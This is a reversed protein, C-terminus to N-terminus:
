RGGITYRGVSLLRRMISGSSMFALRMDTMRLLISPWACLASPRPVNSCMHVIRVHMDKERERKGIQGAKSPTARRESSPFYKMCRQTARGASIVDIKLMLLMTRPINEVGGADGPCIPRQWPFQSCICQLPPVTSRRPTTSASRESSPVHLM